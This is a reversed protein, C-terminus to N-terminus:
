FCAFCSQFFPMITVSLVFHKLHELEKKGVWMLEVEQTWPHMMSPPQQVFSMGVATVMETRPFGAINQNLSLVMKHKASLSWLWSPSRRFSQCCRCSLVSVSTLFSSVVLIFGITVDCWPWYLIFCVISFVAFFCVFCFCSDSLFFFCSCTKYMTYIFNKKTCSTLLAFAHSVSSSSGSSGEEDACWIKEEDRQLSTLSWSRTLSWTSWIRRDTVSLHESVSLLLM